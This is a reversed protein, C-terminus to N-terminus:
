LLERPIKPLSCLEWWESGDYEGRVAWSGDKFWITGFLEQGGYGSNYDFDIERLFREYDETSYGVKLLITEDEDDFWSGGNLITACKIEKNRLKLLDIIERKANM